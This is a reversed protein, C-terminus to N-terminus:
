RECAVKGRSRTLSTGCTSDCATAAHDSHVEDFGCARLANPRRDHNGRILLIRGQLARRLQEIRALATLAFDGVLYILDGAGV